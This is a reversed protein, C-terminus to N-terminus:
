FSFKRGYEQYSSANLRHLGYSYYVVQSAKWNWLYASTVSTGFIHGLFYRRPCMGVGPCRDQFHSAASSTALSATCLLWTTVVDLRQCWVLLLMKLDVGGLRGLLTPRLKLHGDAGYTRGDTRGDTWLFNRRNWHFKTHLLCLDILSAHRYATHGSGLGLDLGLDCAKSLRFNRWKWLSEGGGNIILQCIVM